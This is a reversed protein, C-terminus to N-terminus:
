AHILCSCYNLIMADVVLVGAECCFLVFIAEQARIAAKYELTHKMSQLNNEPFIEFYM